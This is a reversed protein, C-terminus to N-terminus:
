PNAIERKYAVEANYGSVGGAGPITFPLYTMTFQNKINVTGGYIQAGDGASNNNITITCPTYIFVSLHTITVQTNTSFDPSSAGGCASVATSSYPVIAQFKNVTSNGSQLNIGSLSIAGASTSDGDVIALDNYVNVPTSGSGSLTLPCGPTIHVVTPPASSTLSKIYNAANTCRTAANSDNVTHITYGATIWGPEDYLVQTFQLAPPAGGNWGQVTNGNVHANSGNVSVTTKAMADLTVTASNNLAISSTGSKASGDVLASQSMSISGNSWFDGGVHCTNGLTGSGQAYVAGHDTVSNTCIFNANTYINADNGQYGNVLTNNAITPTQNSFIAQSLGAYTPSLRAEAEMTRTGGPLTTIPLSHGTSTLVAKYPCLGYQTVGNCTTYVGTSPDCPLPTTAYTGIQTYYSLTVNYQQQPTGQLTGQLSCPLQDMPKSVLLSISSDLGAEAAAIVETRRKDMGSTDTNHMSVAAATVSLILVVASVLIATVMAIGEEDRRRVAFKPSM